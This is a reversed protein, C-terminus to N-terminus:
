HLRLGFGIIFVPIAAIILNQILRIFDEKESVVKIKSKYSFVASIAGLQIAIQFTHANNTKIKFNKM